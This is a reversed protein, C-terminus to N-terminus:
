ESAQALVARVMAERQAVRRCHGKGFLFDVVAEAIPAWAKEAELARGVSGSLSEGERGGWLGNVAVDQGYAWKYIRAGFGNSTM